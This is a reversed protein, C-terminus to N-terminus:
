SSNDTKDLSTVVQIFAQELRVLVSKHRVM